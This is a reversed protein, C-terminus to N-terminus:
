LPCTNVQIFALLVSVVFIEVNFLDIGEEIWSRIHELIIVLYSPVATPIPDPYLILTSSISIQGTLIPALYPYVRLFAASCVNEIKM